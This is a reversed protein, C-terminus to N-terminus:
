EIENGEPEEGNKGQLEKLCPCNQTLKQSHSPLGGSSIRDKESSTYEVLEREGSYPIEDLTGGVSGQSDRM